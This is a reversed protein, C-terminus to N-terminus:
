YTNQAHTTANLVYRLNLLSIKNHKRSTEDDIRTSHSSFHKDKVPIDTALGM